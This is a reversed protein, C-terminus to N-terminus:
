SFTSLPKYDVTKEDQTTASAAHSSFVVQDELLIDELGGTDM